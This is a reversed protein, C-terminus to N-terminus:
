ILLLRWYCRGIVGAIIDSIGKIVSFYLTIWDSVKENGEIVEIGKRISGNVHIGNIVTIVSVIGRDIVCM